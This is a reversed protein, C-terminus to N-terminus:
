LTDWASFQSTDSANLTIEFTTSGDNADAVNHWYIKTSDSATAYNKSGNTHKTIAAFQNTSAVFTAVVNNSLTALTASPDKDGSGTVVSGGASVNLTGAMATGAAFILVLVTLIIKKM